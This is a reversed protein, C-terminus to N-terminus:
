CFSALHGVLDYHTHSRLAGVDTCSLLAVGRRTGLKTSIPHDISVHVFFIVRVMSLFSSFVLFPTETGLFM